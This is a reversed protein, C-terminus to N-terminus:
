YDRLSALVNQLTDSRERAAAGDRWRGGLRKGRERHDHSRHGASFTKRIATKARLLPSNPSPSKARSQTHLKKDVNAEIPSLWAFLLDGSREDM